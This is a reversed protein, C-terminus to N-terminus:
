TDVKPLSDIYSEPIEMESVIQTNIAMAAKLVQTVNDKQYQIWKRCSESLGDEPVQAIPLWWKDDTRQVTVKEDEKDDKSGYWFENQNEFNDLCKQM